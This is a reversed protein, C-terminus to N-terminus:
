WTAPRNSWTNAQRSSAAYLDENPVWQSSYLRRIAGVDRSSLQPLYTQYEAMSSWRRGSKMIDENDHSHNAIGLAHGLEHLINAQIINFPLGSSKMMLTAEGEMFETEGGQSASQFGEVWYVKIQAQNPHAVEVVKLRGDLAQSWAGLGAWVSQRLAPTTPAVYVSVVAGGPRSLDFTRMSQVSDESWGSNPATWTSQPSVGSWAPASWFLSCMVGIACAVHAARYVLM